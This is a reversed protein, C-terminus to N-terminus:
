PLLSVWCEEGHVLLVADGDMLPWAADVEAPLTYTKLLVGDKNYAYAASKTFCFFRGRGSVVDVCGPPLYVPRDYGPLSAIRITSIRNETQGPTRPAFVMLPAGSSMDWARVQWGYVLMRSSELGTYSYSIVYSTGVAFIQDGSFFLKEFLQGDSTISGTMAQGPRYTSICSIPSVGSTDLALVYLMDKGYLGLDMVHRGPINTITDLIRGELDTVVASFVGSDDELLIALAGTGCAVSCITQQFARDFLTTGDPDYVRITTVDYAAVVSGSASLSVDQAFLDAVWREGNQADICHLVGEHAYFIGESNSIRPDSPKMATLRAKDFSGERAFFMIPLAICAALLLAALTILLIFRRKRSRLQRRAKISGPMVM